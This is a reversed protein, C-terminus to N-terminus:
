KAKPKPENKEVVKPVPVPKPEPKSKPKSGSGIIRFFILLVFIGGAAFMGARKYDLQETEETPTQGAEAGPQPAPAAKAVAPKDNKAIAVDPVPKTTAVQATQFIKFSAAAQQMETDLSAEKGAGALMSVAYIRGNASTFRIIGKANLNGFTSTVPYQLWSTAGIQVTSRGLFQYTLGRMLQEVAKVTAADSLNSSPPNDLVNVGFAVHRTANQMAILLTTGPVDAMKIRVWGTSDPLNVSCAYIDDRWEAARLPLLLSLLFLTTAKLMPPAFCFM